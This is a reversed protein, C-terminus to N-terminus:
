PIIEEWPLFFDRHRERTFKLPAWTKGRREDLATAWWSFTSNGIIRAPARRLREFDLLADSTGAAMRWQIVRSAGCVLEMTSEAHSRDDTVVVFRKWGSGVARQVAHSYYSHDIVQHLPVKLFDGGRIHIACEDDAASVEESDISSPGLLDIARQLHGLSWGVQFYGDMVMPWRGPSRDAAAWFNRDNIGFLPLVRGIRAGDVLCRALDSRCITKSWEPALLRFVDPQRASAYRHLGDVVVSPKLGTREAILALAAIQYLQNGLGGALRLYAKM